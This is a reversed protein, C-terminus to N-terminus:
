IGPYKGQDGARAHMPVAGFYGTTTRCLRRNQTSGVAQTLADRNQAFKFGDDPEIIKRERSAELAIQHASRGWIKAGERVAEFAKKTAALRLDQVEREHAKSEDVKFMIVQWVAREVDEGFVRFPTNDGAFQFAM